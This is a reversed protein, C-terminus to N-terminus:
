ARMRWCLFSGIDLVAQRDMRANTKRTTQREGPGTVPGARSWSRRSAASCRPCSPAGPIRREILDVRRVEVLELDRPAELGVVETRPGFVLEFPRRERDLAHEIRGAARASRDDREVALGALHDPRVAQAFALARRDRRPLERAAAHRVPGVALAVVADDVHRGAVLEDLQVRLGARHNRDNPM